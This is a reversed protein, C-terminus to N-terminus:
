APLTARTDHRAMLVASLDRAVHRAIEPPTAIVNRGAPQEPRPKCGACGGADGHCGSRLRDLQRHEFHADRAPRVCAPKQVHRVAASRQDICTGAVQLEM